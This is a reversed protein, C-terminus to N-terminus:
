VTKKGVLRCYLDQVAEAHSCWKRINYGICGKHSYDGKAVDDLLFQYSDERSKSKVWFMAPIIQGDLSYEPVYEANGQKIKKKAEKQIYESKTM